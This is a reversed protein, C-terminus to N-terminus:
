LQTPRAFHSSTNSIPQSIRLFCFLGLLGGEILLRKNLKTQRQRILSCLRAFCYFLQGMQLPAKDLMQAFANPLSQLFIISRYRRYFYFNAFQYIQWRISSTTPFLSLNAVQFFLSVSMPNILMIDLTDKTCCGSLFSLSRLLNFQKTTPFTKELTSVGCISEQHFIIPIIIFKDFM